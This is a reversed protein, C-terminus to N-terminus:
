APDHIEPARHPPHLLCSSHPLESCEQEGATDKPPHSSVEGESHEPHSEEARGWQTVARPSAGTSQATTPTLLPSSYLWPTLGSSEMMRKTNDRGSTGEFGACGGQDWMELIGQGTGRVSSHQPVPVGVKTRSSWCVAPISSGAGEM